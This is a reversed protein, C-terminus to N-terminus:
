RVFVRVNSAGLRAAISLIAQRHDRLKARLAGPDAQNEAFANAVAGRYRQPQWVRRTCRSLVPECRMESTRASSLRTRLDVERGGFLDALELEM